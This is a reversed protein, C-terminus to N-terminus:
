AVIACVSVTFTYNTYAMLRDIVISLFLNELTINKLKSSDLALKTRAEYFVQYWHIIGNPSIPPQWTVLLSSNTMTQVAVNLPASPGTSFLLLLLITAVLFLTICREQINCDQATRVAVSPTPPSELFSEGQVNVARVSVNYITFKQLGGVRVSKESGIVRVSFGLANLEKRNQTFDTPTREVSVFYALLPGNLEEPEKWAVRLSTSSTVTITLNRPAM